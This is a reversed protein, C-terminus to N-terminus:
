YSLRYSMQKAPRPPRTTQSALIAFELLLSHRKLGLNSDRKPCFNIHYRQVRQLSHRPHTIHVHMLQFVIYAVSIYLLPEIIVIWLCHTVLSNVLPIVNITNTQLYIMLLCEIRTFDNPCSLKYYICQNHITIMSGRRQIETAYM